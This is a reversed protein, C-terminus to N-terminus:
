KMCKKTKSIAFSSSIISKYNESTAHTLMGDINNEFSLFHQISEKISVYVHDDTEEVCPIPVKNAISTSINLYYKDIDKPSLLLTTQLTNTVSCLPSYFTTTMM